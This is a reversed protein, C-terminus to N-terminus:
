IALIIEATFKRVLSEEIKGKKKILQLIDGGPCNQM